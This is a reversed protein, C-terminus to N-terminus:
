CGSERRVEAEEPRFELAMMGLVDIKEKAKQRLLRPPM